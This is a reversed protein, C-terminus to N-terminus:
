GHKTCTFLTCNTTTDIGYDIFIDCFSQMLTCYLAIHNMASNTLSSHPTIYNSTTNQLATFYLTIYHLVTYHLTIYHVKTYQLTHLKNYHNGHKSPLSTCHIVNCMTNCHKAIKHLLYEYHAICYISFNPQIFRNGHKTPCALPLCKTM